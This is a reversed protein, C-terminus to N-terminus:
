QISLPFQSVTEATDKSKSANLLGNNKIYHSMGTLCLTVYIHLCGSLLDLLFDQIKFVSLWSVGLGLHM